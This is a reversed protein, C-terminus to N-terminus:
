KKAIGTGSQRRLFIDFTEEGIERNSRKSLLKKVQVIQEIPKRYSITQEKPEDAVAGSEKVLLEFKSSRKIKELPLPIAQDIADDVKSKDKGKINLADIVPRMGIILKPRVSRYVPSATDVGTKTTNWPLQAPDDSRFFVYGRFAGYQNHFRPIKGTEGWGTVNTQDAALICRDNCFLYWGADKMEKSESSLGAYIEVDIPVMRDNFRKSTHLPKIRSSKLLQISAGVIKRGNVTIEFGRNIAGGHSLQIASRLRKPFSEDSFADRVGKNLKSVVIKTGEKSKKPENPVLDFEWSEDDKIWEDVDVAVRFSSEEATSDVTFDKGIKFLARKMGIGFEGVSYNVRKPTDKPRGFRFAVDTALDLPIGGCNDEIVFSNKDTNIKVWLGDFRTEDRLRKAGDLSNDVLDKIAEVLDIDRILMEIFFPKTPDAKAVITKPAM